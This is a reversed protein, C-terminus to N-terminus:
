DSILKSYGNFSNNYSTTYAGGYDLSSIRKVYEFDNYKLKNINTKGNM